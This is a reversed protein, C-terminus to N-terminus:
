PQIEKLKFIYISLILKYANIINTHNNEIELIQAIKEFLKVSFIKLNNKFVDVLKFMIVDKSISECFFLSSQIYIFLDRAINSNENDINWNEEKTLSLITEKMKKDEFELFNGM